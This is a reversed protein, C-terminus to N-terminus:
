GVRMAAVFAPATTTSTSRPARSRCRTPAQCTCTSSSCSELARRAPRRPGALATRPTTRSTASPAKGGTARRSQWRACSTPTWVGSVPVWALIAGTTGAFKGDIRPVFRQNAQQTFDGWIPISVQTPVFHDAPTNEPRPESHGRQVRAACEKGAPLAAGVALTAFDGEGSGSTNSTCGSVLFVILFVAAM